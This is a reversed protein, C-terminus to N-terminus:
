WESIKSPVNVDNSREPNYGFVRQNLELNVPNDESIDINDVPFEPTFNKMDVSDLEIVEM